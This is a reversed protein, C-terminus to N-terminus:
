AVKKLIDHSLNSKIILIWKEIRKLELDEVFSNEIDYFNLTISPKNNKPYLKLDLTKLEYVTMKNIRKESVHKLQECSNIENLNIIIFSDADLGRNYLLKKQASDIGICTNSWCEKQDLNLNNNKAITNFNKALKKSFSLGTKNLYYIPLFIILVIVAAIINVQADM